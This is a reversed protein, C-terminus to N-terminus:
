DVAPRASAGATPIRRRINFFSLSTTRRSLRYAGPTAEKFSLSAMVLMGSETKLVRV